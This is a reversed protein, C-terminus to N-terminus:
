IFSIKNNNLKRKGRRTPQIAGTIKDRRKNVGRLVGPRIDLTAMFTTKCVKIRDFGLRFSYKLRKDTAKGHAEM